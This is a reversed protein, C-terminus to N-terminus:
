MIKSKIEEVVKETKYPQMVGKLIANISNNKMNPEVKVTAFNPKDDKNCIYIMNKISLNSDFVLLGGGYNLDIQKTIALKKIMELNKKVKLAHEASNIGLAESKKYSIELASQISKVIQEALIQEPSKSKSIKDFMSKVISPKKPADADPAPAPAPAPATDPAPEADAAGGGGILPTKVADDNGGYLIKEAHSSKLGYQKLLLALHPNTM